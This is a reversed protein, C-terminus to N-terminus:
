SPRICTQVDSRCLCKLDRFTPTCPLSGSRVHLDFLARLFLTVFYPPLQAAAASRLPTPVLIPRHRHLSRLLVRRVVPPSDSRHRRRGTRPLSGAHQRAQLRGGVAAGDDSRRRQPDNPEASGHAVRCAM